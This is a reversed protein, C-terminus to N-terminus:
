FQLRLALQLSRPGGVQYLASLGGLSVNQTQYATGFLPTGYSMDNYIAGYNPHNFLNFGEARLQLNVREGLPFTRQVALDVQVADFGRAGNRPFNGEIPNGNEDTAVTFADYNIARGGPVTPDQVYLPIGPIRDPHFNLTVGLSDAAYTYGFIDVPLASRASIRTDIAWDELVASALRNSYNGPINYTVAAQFNHRIDFDSSAREQTFVQFNTSADDISHSFTYSLLMQLGHALRRDFQAQLANYNSSTANTTLYLGYGGDAASVFNPNGAIAPDYQKQQLLRWGASGVYTLTLSQNPGLAQQLAVNWQWTYPLKLHPDFGIVESNYPAAASPVPLSAIQEATLPFASGSFSTTSSIGAGLWYGTSAQANGTDYFLGTGGRLVTEHGPRQRLQYAVGIRPAFNGYSTHWLPTGQPALATTALDTSTITYPNNGYADHPPPNLEWRLGVSLSLRSTAKWEDQLFASFNTYIPEMKGETRLAFIYDSQNNLIEDASSYLGFEYNPPLLSDTSLRRYDIGWKFTHRGAILSATDTLNWQRQDTRVPYFGFYPFLDWFPYFALWGTSSSGPISSPDFPTAGGFNDISYKQDSNNQTINFRVENSLSSNLVNTAGLTGSRVTGEIAAPNALNGTYLTSRSILGSSSDSYRGFIKFRDSINQDIRIGVTDLHSPSVYGGTYTAMGDGQDTDGNPLPFANLFPQLAVPAEQRLGLSPVGYLQAAHPQQLWLGEYSFFFYTKGHGDYINPIQIPGGLTGGFDNQKEAQRPQGYYNNFWNNADFAENRLYDFASGHWDNTGSRTSFTFQGGPTRGYEASYTSTTVRFEQLADISVLSQTTGLTTTGLLSGGYGASWGASLPNAGTNASVGDVTFYNAETRQGNVTLEGTRGATSPVVSVGPILTMLPQFSRGNLPINEIFQHDVVTSVSADTTNISLGNGDVTVSESGSSIALEVNLNAKATVELILNDVIKKQFGHAEVVLRYTAPPLLTFAYIGSDNTTTSQESGTALNQVSITAKPIVAGSPDRVFGSLQAQQGWTCSAVTLLWGLV